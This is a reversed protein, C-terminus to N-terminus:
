LSKESCLGKEFTPNTTSTASRSTKRQPSWKTSNTNNWWYEVNM